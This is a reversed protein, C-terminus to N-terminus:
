SAVCRGHGRRPGASGRAPPLRTERCHRSVGLQPDLVMGGAREAVIVAPNHDAVRGSLGRLSDFHSAGTTRGCRHSAVALAANTSRRPSPPPPRTLDPISSSLGLCSLWSSLAHVV